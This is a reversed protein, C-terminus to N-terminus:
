GVVERVAAKVDNKNPLVYQNVSDSHAVPAGINGVRKIPAKLRYSADSSAVVAAVEAGFGGRVVAEHAIVLRGTKSVSEVITGVDLPFLSRLDIVEVSIGEAELEAAAEEVMLAMHLYSVVTVDAGERRVAAKGLPVEYQEEPVDGTFGYADQHEVFVVPDPDRIASLLMGKADYPTSPAAVKLGPVHAFWSELAQGTWVNTARFNVTRVVLPCHMKGNNVYRAKAASNAIQDMAITACGTFQIEVVPRMGMLAAGVGLGVIASESIPSDMVREPGFRDLLGATVDFLGGWLGVDEGFVFVREDRLMEQTFAENLAQSLTLTRM